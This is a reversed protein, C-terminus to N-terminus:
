ASVGGSQRAMQAAYGAAAGKVAGEAGEGAQAMSPPSDISPYSHCRSPLVRCLELGHEVLLLIRTECPNRGRKRHEKPAPMLPPTFRLRLLSSPPYLGIMSMTSITSCADPVECRVKMGETYGKKYGAVYTDHLGRVRGRDGVQSLRALM